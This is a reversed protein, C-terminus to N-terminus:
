STDLEICLIETRYTKWPIINRTEMQMSVIELNSPDRGQNIWDTRTCLIEKMMLDRILSNQEYDPRKSFQEPYPIKGISLESIYSLHHAEGKHDYLMTNCLTNYVWCMREYIGEM